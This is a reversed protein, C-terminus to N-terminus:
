DSDFQSEPAKKHGRLLAARGGPVVAGDTASRHHKAAHPSLGAPIRGKSM